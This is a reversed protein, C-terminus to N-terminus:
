NQYCKLYKEEAEKVTKYIEEAKDWGAQWLQREKSNEPYVCVPMLKFRKFDRYARVGQMYIRNM